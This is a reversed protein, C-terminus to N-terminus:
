YAQKTTRFSWCCYSGLETKEFVEKIDESM